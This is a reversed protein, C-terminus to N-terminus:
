QWSQVHLQRSPYKNTEWLRGWCVSFNKLFTDFEHVGQTNNDWGWNTLFWMKTYNGLFCCSSITWGNPSKWHLKFRWLRILGFKTLKTIIKKFIIYAKKILTRFFFSVSAEHQQKWWPIRNHSKVLKGINVM